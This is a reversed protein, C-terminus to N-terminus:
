SNYYQADENMACLLNLRSANLQKQQWSGSPTRGLSLEVETKVDLLIGLQVLFTLNAWSDEPDRNIKLEVDHWVDVRGKKHVGCDNYLYILCRYRGECFLKLGM